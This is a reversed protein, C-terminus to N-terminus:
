NNNEAENIEVEGQERLYEEDFELSGKLDMLKSLKKFRIADRIASEVAKSRNKTSYLAEAEKVIEDTLNLTTRM